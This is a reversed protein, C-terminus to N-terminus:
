PNFRTLYYEKDLISYGFLLIYDLEIMPVMTDGFLISSLSTLPVLYGSLAPTIVRGVTPSDGVLSM